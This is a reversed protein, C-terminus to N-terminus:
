VCPGAGVFHGSVASHRLCHGEQGGGWAAVRWACMSVHAVLSLVASLCAIPVVALWAVFAGVPGSVVLQRSWQWRVSLVVSLLVRSGVPNSVSVSSLHSAGLDIKGARGRRGQPRGRRPRQRGATREPPPVSLILARAAAVPPPPSSPPPKSPRTGGSGSFSTWCCRASRWCRWCRCNCIMTMVTIMM